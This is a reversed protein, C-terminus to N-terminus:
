AVGLIKHLQLQVRVEAKADQAHASIIPIWGPAFLKSTFSFILFLNDFSKLLDLTSLICDHKVANYPEDLVFKVAGRVKSLELINKNTIERQEKSLGKLKWDAVIYVNSMEIWSTPIPITGNTEITVRYYIPIFYLFTDLANRQVLPEGGTILIDKLNSSLIFDLLDEDSISRGGIPSISDKTDCYACHLNCGQLRILTCPAGMFPLEGHITTLTSHTNLM